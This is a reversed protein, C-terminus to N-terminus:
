VTFSIHVTTIRKVYLLRRPNILSNLITFLRFGIKQFPFGGVFACDLTSVLPCVLNVMM